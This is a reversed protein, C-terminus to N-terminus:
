EAAAPQESNAAAEVETPTQEVDIPLPPNLSKEPTVEEEFDDFAGLQFGKLLTGTTLLAWYLAAFGAACGAAFSLSRWTSSNLLLYVSVSAGLATVIVRTSATRRLGRAAHLSIAHRASQNALARMAALDSPQEPATKSKMEELNTFMPQAPTEAVIKDVTSTPNNEVIDSPPDSPGAVTTGGSPGGRMRTLLKAM